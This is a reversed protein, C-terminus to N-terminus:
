GGPSLICDSSYVGPPMPRPQGFGPPRPMGPPFNGYMQPPYQQPPYQGGQQPAQSFQPPMPPRSTSPYQQSSPPQPPAQSNAWPPPPAGSSGAICLRKAVRQLLNFQPNQLLKLPIIMVSTSARKQLTGILHIKVQNQVQSLKHHIYV